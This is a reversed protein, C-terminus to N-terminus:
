RIHASTTPAAYKELLRVLGGVALAAGAALITSGGAHIFLVPVWAIGLVRHVLRMWRNRITPIFLGYGVIGLIVAFSALGSYITQDSTRYLLMYTGHAAGLALTTFGLWKHVAYLLKGAKRVLMSPSKRKNKFWVWSFGAAAAFLAITGMTKFSEGGEPPRERPRHEGVNLDLKYYYALLSVAILCAIIAPIWVTKKNKM